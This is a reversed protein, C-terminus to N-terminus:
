PRTPTTPITTASMIALHMVIWAVVAYFLAVLTAEV